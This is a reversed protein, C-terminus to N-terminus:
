GAKFQKDITFRGPLVSFFDKHATGYTRERPHKEDNGFGDRGAPYRRRFGTRAPM